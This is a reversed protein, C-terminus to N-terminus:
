ECNKITPVIRIATTSKLMYPNTPYTAPNILVPIVLVVLNLRLDILGVSAILLACNSRVAAISPSMTIAYMLLISTATKASCNKPIWVAANAANYLM